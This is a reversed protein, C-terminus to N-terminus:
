RAQEIADLRKNLLDFGAAQVRLISQLTQNMQPAPNEPLPAEARQILTDMTVPVAVTEDGYRTGGLWKKGVPKKQNETYIVQNFFSGPQIGM